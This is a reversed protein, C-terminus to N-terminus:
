FKILPSCTSERNTIVIGQMQRKTIPKCKSVFLYGPIRM